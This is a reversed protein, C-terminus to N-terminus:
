LDPSPKRVDQLGQIAVRTGEAWVTRYITPYRQRFRTLSRLCRHLTAEGGPLRGHREAQRLRDRGNRVVRGANSPSREGAAVVIEAQAIPKARHEVVSAESIEVGPAALRPVRGPTQRQGREQLEALPQAVALRSLRNPRPDVPLIQQGTVQGVRTEVVGHEALEAAAQKLM